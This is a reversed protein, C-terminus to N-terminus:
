PATRVARFGIDDNRSFSSLASSRDSVRLEDKGTKWSGGRLGIAAVSPWGSVDADGNGDLDGNGNSGDFSTTNVAAVNVVIEWVNGSMDLVGYWAAGAAIRSGGYWAGSRLPGGNLAKYSCNASGNGPKENSQGSNSIGSAGTTTTDGWAPEGPSPNVATGGDNGRCVKEYEMESMPRLGAWDAYAAADEWKLFNCAVYPTSTYYELPVATSSANLVLGKIENRASCSATNTLAYDASPPNSVIIHAVRASQQTRSLTNLFSAYQGQTIEYKMCYFGKYGKPFSAPLTGSAINGSAWLSGISNDLSLASESTVQFASPFIGAQFSYTETGGTGLYFSGQPVYVMEVAFVRLEVSTTDDLGDAGYNWRLQVGTYNVSQQSLNSSAYLFAGKGDPTINMAAGSPVVHGDTAASGSSYNLTAHRWEYSGHTRYKIFIWAADWNSEHTSTRWSNDWTIDFRVQIHNGSVDQGTFAPTSVQINNAFALRGTVLLLAM